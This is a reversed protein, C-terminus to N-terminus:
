WLTQVSTGNMIIILSAYHTAASITHPEKGYHNSIWELKLRQKENKIQEEKTPM